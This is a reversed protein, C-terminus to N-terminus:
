ERPPLPPGFLRLLQEYSGAPPDASRQADHSLIESAGAPVGVVENDPTLIQQSGDPSAQPVAGGPAPVDDPFIRLKQASDVLSQGGEMATAGLYGCIM